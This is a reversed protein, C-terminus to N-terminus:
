GQIVKPNRSCLWVKKRYFHKRHMFYHAVLQFVSSEYLGVGAKPSSGADCPRHYTREEKPCKLALYRIKLGRLKARLLKEKKM